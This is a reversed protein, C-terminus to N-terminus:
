QAYMVINWNNVNIAQLAGVTIKNPVHFQTLSNNFTLGIQTANVWPAFIVAGSTWNYSSIAIEDGVSYGAEAAVCRLAYYTYRPLRGLGHNASVSAVGAPISVVTEFSSIDNIRQWSLSTGNTTLVKNAHSSQSPVTNLGNVNGTANIDGTVTVGNSASISGTVVVGTNNVLLRESGFLRFSHSSSTSLTNYIAPQTPGDPSALTYAGGITTGYLDIRTNQYSASGYSTGDNVLLRAVQLNGSMVDTPKQVYNALTTALSSLTVVPSNVWASGNWMLADNTALGSVQVNSLEELQDKQIVPYNVQSVINTANTTVAALLVRSFSGPLLATGVSLNVTSRDSPAKIAYIYNTANPALSVAQTPVTCYYGGIFLPYSSVYAVLGTASETSLYIQFRSSPTTRWETETITAGTRVNRSSVFAGADYQATACFWYYGFTTSYGFTSGPYGYNPMYGPTTPTSIFDTYSGATGANTNTDYIAYYWNTGGPVPVDFGFMFRGSQTILAHGSSGFSVTNAGDGRATNGEDLQPQFLNSAPITWSGSEYKAIYVQGTSSRVVSWVIPSSTSGNWANVNQEVVGNIGSVSSPIAPATFGTPTYIRNTGSATITYIQVGPKCFYYTPIGGLVTTGFNGSVWFPLIASPAGGATAIDLINATASDLKLTDNAVGSTSFQTTSFQAQVFRAGYTNSYSNMLIQDGIVHGWYTAILKSWASGDPIGLSYSALQAPAWLATHFTQYPFTPSLRFTEGATQTSFSQKRTLLLNGSFEETMLTVNQGGAPDNTMGGNATNWTADPLLNYRFAGSKIPILNSPAGAGSEIWSKPIAWSVSLGLEQGIVNGSSNAFRFYSTCHLHFKETFKNWTFPYVCRGGSYNALTVSSFSQALARGSGTTDNPNVMVDWDVLTQSRLLNLSLDYVSLYIDNEEVNSHAVLIRKGSNTEVVSFNPIFLSAALSSVDALLTWSAFNSSANTDVIVTRTTTWPYANLTIRLVAFFTGMNLIHSVKENVLLFNPAVPNNNFVWDDSDSYRYAQYMRTDGVPTTTNFYMVQRDASDVVTFSSTNWQGLSFKFDSYVPVVNDKLVGALPPLNLYDAANVDDSTIADTIGYGALTTPTSTVGGWPVSAANTASNATTATTASNAFQANVASGVSLSSPSVWIPAGPGSSQLLQGSTGTVSSALPGSASAAYVVGGTSFPGANGTGGQSTTLLGGMAGLNLNGEIVDLRIDGGIGYGDEVYIRNASSARVQRTTFSNAGTKVLIGDTSVALLSSLVPTVPQFYSSDFGDLTDANISVPAVAVPSWVQGSQDGVASLNTDGVFSFLYLGQDIGGVKFFLAGDPTSSPDPLSTGYNILSGSFNKTPM